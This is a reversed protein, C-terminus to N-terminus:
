RAAWESTPWRAALEARLAQAREKGGLAPAQEVLRAAEFCARAARPTRDLLAVRLYALAAERPAGGDRQCDGLALWVRGALGDDLEDARAVLARLEALAGARDGAGLLAEALGARAEAQLAPESAGAALRRHAEVAARWDKAALLLRARELELGPGAETRLQLGLLEAEATALARRAAPLDGAATLCRAVGLRAEVAFRTTPLAALLAEWTARAAAPDGLALQLRAAHAYAHQRHRAAGASQAEVFAELAAELEGRGLLSLGRQLAAPAKEYVVQRVESARRQQRVGDGAGVSLTYAVVGYTEETVKCGEQRTGDTFVVEDAACPAVSLAAFLALVVLAAALLRPAM